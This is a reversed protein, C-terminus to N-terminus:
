HVNRVRCGLSLVDLPANAGGDVLLEIFSFRSAM